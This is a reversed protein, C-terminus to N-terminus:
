IYVLYHENDFSCDNATLVAIFDTGYKNIWQLPNWVREQLGGNPHLALDILDFDRLEKEYKEELAKILRSELFEIDRYLYFLNKDSLAGLDDRIDRALDRLPKHAKDIAAKIEEALDEIPPKSKSQLWQDRDKKVGKHIAEAPDINYKELAKVVQNEMITFSLRPLVPPMKLNLIHFAKKLGAWYGVEGPGGIFALTPFLLEQMLPRTVVNNSLLEPDKEATEMLEDTTLRIENQKGVWFGADDRTLLIREDNKHYFLHGDHQSAELSVKYGKEALANLSSFVGESIGPQYKIMRQFHESELQRVEKHGSDILVLGEDQFLHFIIRAFFDVYTHSKEKIKYIAKYLDRTHVTEDLQEFLNDIWQSLSERNAPINSVSTKEVMHHALKHKKMQSVESLHIHNIEDFDHDEGAIWFVPIVPVGLENEQQRAFQIISIVKNITYMPGTLLGAQQGGIVVVSNSNKLKNINNFTPAPADWEENIRHLVNTLEERNFSLSDLDKIRQEYDGYPNYDFFDMVKKQNNRYDVILQSQAKLQIPDIHM